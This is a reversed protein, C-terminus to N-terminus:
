AQATATPSATPTPTSIASLTAIDYPQGNFTLKVFESSVWGTQNQYSVQLWTSDEIRGTVVVTSGNPLLALSEGSESPTRRLHLNAGANLGTVEGAVVNQLDSSVGSNAPQGTTFVGGRQTDDLINLENLEQLRDFDVAQNNRQFTVFYIIIKICSIM